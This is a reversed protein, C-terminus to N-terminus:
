KFFYSVGFVGSNFELGRNPDSTNGNSVHEFRYGAYIATQDTVFYSAGLGGWVVFTFTSDIEFVKLNTGGATGAAEVYPVLRGLSLFHYRLALGAGAYYAGKPEFYQQYLVQPGIELAGFLPGPGLPEFPLWGLRLGGNVYEANSFMHHNELNFQNGYSVEPSLLLTGKAYTQPADFALAGTAFSLV